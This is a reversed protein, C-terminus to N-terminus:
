DRYVELPRGYNWAFSVANQNQLYKGFGGSEREIEKTHRIDVRLGFPVTNGVNASGDIEARLQIETVLDKYYDYVKQAEHARPDDGAIELGERVYRFKVAPAASSTRTTLANAFMAMHREAREGPLGEIAAKIRPIEQPALQSDHAIARLDCAGLAAYFWTEFVRTTEKEQELDGVDAAYLEAAKHFTAFAAQRRASFEPDKAIEHRFDNEDHEIAAKVLWLEWSEDHKELARGVTTFALDYGRLVETQIDQQRRNTNKDKQLAPDRWVSSLNVRMKEVLKALMTADLDALPGFIQQITELRYIEASSHASVFANALLEPDVEVNLNRVRAVWGALEELNREQKSRTLPIGNARQEFGFMYVYQNTRGRESNPDHNKAWVRLFEDALDKGQRPHTAALQEIWPFASEEESVKLYLQAFVM